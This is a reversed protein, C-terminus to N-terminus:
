AWGIEALVEWVALDVFGLEELGMVGELVKFTRRRHPGTQLYSLFNM